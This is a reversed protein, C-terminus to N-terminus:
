RKGKKRKRSKTRDKQKESDRILRGFYRRRPERNFM